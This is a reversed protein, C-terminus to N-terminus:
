IVDWPLQCTSEIKIEAKEPSFVPQTISHNTVISFSYLMWCSPQICKSTDSQWIYSSARLTFTCFFCVSHLLESISWCWCFTQSLYYLSQPLTLESWLQISVLYVSVIALSWPLVSLAPLGSLTGADFLRPLDLLAPGLSDAWTPLSSPSSCSSTPNSLLPPSSAFCGHAKTLPLSM